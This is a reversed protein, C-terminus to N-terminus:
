NTSPVYPKDETGSGTYKLGSKLTLIPRLYNNDNYSDFSSSDYYYLYKTSIVSGSTAVYRENWRYDTASSYYYYRSAMWYYATIGNPKRAVATGLVSNVLNYDKTYLNDGGGQSEIPNCSEGTSCNWPAPYAFKSTDTIYETQGNYGFHRSSKTYTSNEYQKALENLYGVLNQYGTQGKFYIGTSSIHESVVDVTGEDNLSIVRWLNLEQPNITQTSDYGTKSTDTTYSSKTPTMKVYDGLALSISQSNDTKFTVTGKFEGKDIDEQPGNAERIYVAIYWVKVEKSEMTLGSVLTSENMGNVVSGDKITTTDTLERWGLNNYKSNSDKAELKITGKLSQLRSGTNTLTIKYVQCSLNGYKDVCAGNSSGIGNIANNLSSDKLPVMGENTGVVREVDLTANVAIVNGKIVSRNRYSYALFSYTTRTIIVLLVIIAIIIYKNLFRIKKLKESMVIM